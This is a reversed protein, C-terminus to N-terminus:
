THSGDRRMHQASAARGERSPSHMLGTTGSSGNELSFADQSDGYEQDDRRTKAAPTQPCLYGGFPGALLAPLLFLNSLLGCGLLASLTLGFRRIPVLSSLNFVLLGLGIVVTIRLLSFAVRSSAEQIASHRDLGERLSWRFWTLFQITGHVTLGLALCATMAMGIDVPVSESGLFGFVLVIPFILPIACVLGGRINGAQYKTTRFLIMMLAAIIALACGTSTFLGYWLAQEARHIVPVMGTYTVQIPKGLQKATQEHAPDFGHQRADVVSRAHQRIFDMDYDSHNRLVVVCDFTALTKGWAESTANTGLRNKRPDQWAIYQKPMRGSRKGQYGKARLLDSLVRAFVRHVGLRRDSQDQAAEQPNVSGDLVSDPVVNVAANVAAAQDIEEWPDSAGLVAIKTDDWRRASDSVDSHQQAVTRLIEDRFEYAKLVPEVVRRLQGAFPEAEAGQLAGLRLSIRWLEAGQSDMALYNQSVLRGRDQEWKANAAARQTDLPDLMPPVLTAASLGPGLVDQGQAGFVEEVARQVHTVLEIRELFSLQYDRRTDEETTAPLQSSSADVAALRSKKDVGIVLELPVSKGVHSELWTCDRVIQTHQDFLDRLGVSTRLEAVGFGAAIMLLVASGVVLWQNDMGWDGLWRWLADIRRVLGSPSTEKRHDEFKPPWLQLASPLFSALVALVAVVGLAAFLSFQRVPHLANASLSLSGITLTVAALGCPVVVRTLARLPAGDAGHQSATARYHHVVYIAGAVALVFILLPMGILVADVSGGPWGILALSFIASIGGALLIMVSVTVRRFCAYGLMLGLMALCGALQVFTVCAEEDFAVNEVLPGGMRLVKGADSMRSVSPLLSPPTPARVGSEAALNVLKGAAGGLLGRGLVRELDAQGVPSLTVVICAQLGPPEMGLAGFLANWHQEKNRPSDALLESREGDYQTRVLNEIYADVTAEWGKPLRARLSESLVQPLDAATWSYYAYPEPGFFTGRLRDLAAYRAIQSRQEESYDGTPWLPGGAASMAALLEPGTTISQLVRATLRQPDDHFGNRTTETPRRGFRALLTGDLSPDSLITRRFLRGLAGLLNSHGNWQFLEGDPTIYYWTQGTGRLWKENLGGWNNYSDGAAFLGLQDGWQRGRTLERAREHTQDGAVQGTADTPVPDFQEDGILEENEPCVEGRLKQVFLRYSEDKDSCGEWSLVVYSPEGNFHQGLWALDQSEAFHDPLWHTVHNEIQELAKRAGRLGFPVLFFVVCLIVLARRAFFDLKM